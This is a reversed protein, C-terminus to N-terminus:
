APRVEAAPGDRRCPGTVNATTPQKRTPRGPGRWPRGRPVDDSVPGRRVRDDGARMTRDHTLERPTLRIVRSSAESASTRGPGSGRDDDSGCRDCHRCKKRDESRPEGSTSEWVATSPKSM